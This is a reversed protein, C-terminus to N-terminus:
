RSHKRVSERFAKRSATVLQGASENRSWAGCTQELVDYEQEKDVQAAYVEIARELVRKKSTRLRRALAGIRDAVAEDIRASFIKDM